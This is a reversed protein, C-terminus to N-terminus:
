FAGLDEGLTECTKLWTGMCFGEASGAPCGDGLAEGVGGAPADCDCCGESGPANVLINLEMLAGEAEGASADGGCGEGAEAGWDM